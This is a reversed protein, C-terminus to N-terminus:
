QLVQSVLISNLRAHCAGSSFHNRCVGMITAFGFYSNLELKTM